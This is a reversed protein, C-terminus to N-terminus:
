QPGWSPLYGGGSLFTVQRLLSGSASMIYVQRVGTRTSSFALSKGNPSWTPSENSGRGFTLRNVSRDLFNVSAIDFKRGMLSTYAIQNNRPSWSAGDNYGGKYTLRRVGSGDTKMVYVQPSGSRDSTFAIHQSDPSWTPSTEISRGFTLRKIDSGDANTIYIDSNGRRSLSFAVKSGDPSWEGTSNLGVRRSIPYRTKAKFDIAYLDPNRYRYTTFLIMNKNGPNWHPFLVISKDSTIARSNVGDYDMIMLEKHGAIRSVLAIKTRAIGKDGTMRLLFDDSFQHILQRFLSRSGLYRKAFFLKRTQLDYVRIEASLKGEEAGSLSGKILFNAALSRWEDYDIRGAKLDGRSVQRMFAYKESPKFYGTFKLDNNIIRSAKMGLRGPDRGSVPFEPVVIEVLRSEARQTSLYVDQGSQAWGIGPAVILAIFIITTILKNM